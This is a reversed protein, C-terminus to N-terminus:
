EKKNENFYQEYSVENKEQDKNQFLAKIVGFHAYASIKEIRFDKKKLYQLICFMSADHAKEDRDLRLGKKKCYANIYNFSIEKILLYMQNLYFDKKLSGKERHEIYKNELENFRENHTKM